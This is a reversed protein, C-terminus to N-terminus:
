QPARRRGCSRAQMPTKVPRRPLPDRRPPPEPHLRPVDTVPGDVAAAIAARKAPGPVIAVARPVRLLYPVTLSLALRPVDEIRPFSGDSVQQARCPEDLEVVRM